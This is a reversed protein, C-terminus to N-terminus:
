PQRLDMGPVSPGDYVGQAAWRKIRVLDRLMRLVETKLQVTSEAANALEVPVETIELNLRAAICLAEVDFAFGDIRSREFVQRAADRHFGKLGCQTDGYRRSLVMRTFLNFGRHTIGRVMSSGVTTRTDAHHRNGVVVDWGDEVADRLRVIQGPPYSLDADTFVISSGTAVLMGARVAAGKGRNVPLRIVQDAGAARARDSTDDLSGDDVVIIEPRAGAQESLTAVLAAVTDGIRRGEGFAPVVVSLRPRGPLPAHQSSPSAAPRRAPGGSV